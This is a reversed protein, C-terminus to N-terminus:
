KYFKCLAHLELKDSANYKTIDDENNIASLVDRMQQMIEM